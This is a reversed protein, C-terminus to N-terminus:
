REAAQAEDARTVAPQLKDFQSRQTDEAKVYDTQTGDIKPINTEVDAEKNAAKSNKDSYYKADKPPEATAAVPNVEVFTLPIEIQREAAKKPDNKAFMKTKQLWAPVHIMQLWGLGKALKYGGWAGGHVLLSLVLAIALSSMELRGPRLSGENVRSPTMRCLMAALKM